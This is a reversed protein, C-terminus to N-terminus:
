SVVVNVVRNPVVVIKRVTKGATSEKVKPAALAAEEV